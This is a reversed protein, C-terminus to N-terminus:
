ADDDLQALDYPELETQYLSNGLLFLKGAFRQRGTSTFEFEYVRLLRWGSETKKVTYNAFAVSDDLLQIQEALCRSQALQRARHFYGTHQWWLLMFFAVLLLWSLTTLSM